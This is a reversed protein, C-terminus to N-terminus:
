EGWWLPLPQSLAYVFVLASFVALGAGLLFTERLNVSRRGYACVLTLVAAALVLGLWKLVFGFLIVAAVIATIPRLQMPEVDPGSTRLSKLVLGLGLALILASLIVPFYGPGMKAATGFDLDLGSYIGGSGIVIFVVAAGLDQPSKVKM